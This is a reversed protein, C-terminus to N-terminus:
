EGTWRMAAERAVEVARQKKAYRVPDAAGFAALESKLQASDANLGQLTTLLQRREPQPSNPAMPHLM